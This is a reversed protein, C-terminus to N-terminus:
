TRSRQSTLELFRLAIDAANKEESSLSQKDLFKQLLKGASLTTELMVAQIDEQTPPVHEGNSLMHESNSNFATM